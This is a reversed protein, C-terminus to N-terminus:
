HEFRGTEVIERLKALVMEATGLIIDERSAEKGFVANIEDRFGNASAFAIHVRGVPKEATGGGPGAIGTSAIVHDVDSQALLASALEAAAERSVSGHRIFVEASGALRSKSENSYPVVSGDFVASAGPVATIAAGILGGTLSEVFAFRQGKARAAEVCLRAREVLGADILPM